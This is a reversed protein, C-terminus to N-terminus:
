DVINKYFFIKNNNTPLQLHEHVVHKKKTLVHKLDRFGIKANGYKNKYRTCTAM